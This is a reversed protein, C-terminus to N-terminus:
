IGFIIKTVAGHPPNNSLELRGGHKRCLVRSITLGMGCHGDEDTTPLLLRNRSKLIKESYGEGDDTVTVAFLSGETVFSISIMKKAFRLSNGVINELVRYLISTDLSITEVSGAETVRLEVNRESVMLSLDETIDSILERVSVATRHIEIDDLQNVERVSETYQELRKAAKAINDVTGEMKENSLDGAQLHLLLYETYGEIIAIPNRLDHAVSAQIMKRDEINKWLERNNEYLALRMQEFSRCLQGLENEAACSVTFDLDQRSIHETADELSFLAPAIKKRYFWRACLSFGIISYLVPLAAMSIGSMIYAIKRRPGNWGIGRDMNEISLTITELEKKDPEGSDAPVILPVSQAKGGVEFKGGARDTTGDSYIYDAHVMVDRGDPVLWKQFLFLGTVTAASFFAVILLTLLVATFFEMKLTRKRIKEM